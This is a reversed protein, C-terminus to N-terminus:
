ETSGVNQQHTWKKHIGWAKKAYRLNAINTGAKRKHWKLVRCILCQKKVHMRLLLLGKGMFLLCGWNMWPSTTSIQSLKSAPDKESADRAAKCCSKVLHKSIEGIDVGSKTNDKSSTGQDNHWRHTKKNNQSSQRLTIFPPSYTSTEQLLSELVKKKAHKKTSKRHTDRGHRMPWQFGLLRCTCTHEINALLDHLM